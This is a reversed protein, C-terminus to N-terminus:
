PLKKGSPIPEIKYYKGTQSGMCIIRRAFEEETEGKIPEINWCSLSPPMSIRDVITIGNSNFTLAGSQTKGQALTRGCGCSLGSIVAVLLLVVVRALRRAEPTVGRATFM